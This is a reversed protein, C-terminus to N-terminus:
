ARSGAALEAAELSPLVQLRSAITTLVAAAKDACLPGCAGVVYSGDDARREPSFAVCIDFGLEFGAESLPRALLDRTAGVYSASSLVITQGRRAHRCVAACAGQVASPDSLRIVIADALSLKAEDGPFEFDSDVIVILPQRAEPEIGIPTLARGRPIQAEDMSERLLSEVM